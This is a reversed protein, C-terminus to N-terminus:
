QEQELYKIWKEFHPFLINEGVLPLVLLNRTAFNAVRTITLSNIVEVYSTKTYELSSRGTLSISNWKIVFEAAAEAM